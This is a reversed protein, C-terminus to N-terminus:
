AFVLSQREVQDFLPTHLKKAVRSLGDQQRLAIECAAQLLEFAATVDTQAHGSAAFEFSITVEGTELDAETMPGVMGPVEDLADAFADTFVDVVSRPIKLSVEFTAKTMRKAAMAESRIVM